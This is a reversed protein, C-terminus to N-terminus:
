DGGRATRKRSAQPKCHAQTCTHPLHSTPHTNRRTRSPPQSYLLCLSPIPPTPLPPPLSPPLSVSPGLWLSLSLPPPHSPPPPLSPPPSTPLSPSLPSSSAYCCRRRSVPCVPCIVSLCHVALWGIGGGLCGLCTALWPLLCILVPGPQLWYAFVPKILFFIIIVRPCLM